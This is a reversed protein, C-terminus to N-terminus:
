VQTSNERREDEEIVEQSFAGHKRGFRQLKPPLTSGDQPRDREEKRLQRIGQQLISTRQRHGVERPLRTQLIVVGNSPDDSTSRNVDDRTSRAM